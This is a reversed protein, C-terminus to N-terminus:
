RVPILVIVNKSRQLITHQRNKISRHRCKQPIQTLPTQQRRRHHRRGPFKASRGSDALESLIRHRLLRTPIVPRM